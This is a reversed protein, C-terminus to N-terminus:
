AASAEPTFPAPPRPPAAPAAVLTVVDLERIPEGTDGREV